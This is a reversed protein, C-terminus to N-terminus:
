PDALVDVLCHTLEEGAWQLVGPEGVQEDVGGVHIDPDVVLHDRLSQDDSGPDRGLSTALDQAHREAVSLGRVKPGGEQSGQALPSQPDGGVLVGLADHQDGTVGVWTDPGRGSAIRGLAAQCRHRTWKARLM